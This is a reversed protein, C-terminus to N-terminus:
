GRGPRAASGCGGFGAAGAGVEATIGTASSAVRAACTGLRMRVKISGDSRVGLDLRDPLTERLQTLLHIQLQRKGERLAIHPEDV